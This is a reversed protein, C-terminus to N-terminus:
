KKKASERKNLLITFHIAHLIMPLHSVVSPLRLTPTNLIDIDKTSELTVGDLKIDLKMEILAKHAKILLDFGAEENDVTDKAENLLKSLVISQKPTYDQPIELNRGSYLPLKYNESCESLLEKFKELTTSLIPEMSEELVKSNERAQLTIKEMIEKEKACFIDKTIIDNKLDEKLEEIRLEGQQQLIIADVQVDLSLAKVQNSYDEILREFDM